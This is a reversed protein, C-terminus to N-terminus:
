KLKMILNHRQIISIPSKSFKNNIKTWDQKASFVTRCREYVYAYTIKGLIPSYFADKFPVKTGGSKARVTECLQSNPIEIFQENRITESLVQYIIYELTIRNIEGKKELFTSLTKLIEPRATKNPSLSDASFIDITPGALELARTNINTPTIPFEM